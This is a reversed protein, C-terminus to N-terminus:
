HTPPALPPPPQQYRRELADLIAELATSFDPEGPKLYAAFSHGLSFLVASLFLFLVQPWNINSVGNLLPMIAMAGAIFGTIIMSELLQLAARQVPTLQKM